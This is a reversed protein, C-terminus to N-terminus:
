EVEIDKVSLESGGTLQIKISGCAPCIQQYDIVTFDANCDECHATLPMEEVYLCAGSALTDKAVISFCFTLQTPVLGRLEGAVLDIRTIKKAGQKNAAEIAIDLISQAISLEHM